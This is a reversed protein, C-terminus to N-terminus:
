DDIIVQLYLIDGFPVGEETFIRYYGEFVDQPPEDEEEEEDKEQFVVTLKLRKKEDPKIDETIVKKICRLYEQSAKIFSIYCGKLNNQGKNLVEFTIDFNEKSNNLLIKSPRFISNYNKIDIKAPKTLKVFAHDKNHVLNTNEKCKQCLNFNECECCIYRTGKFNSELCNHCVVNTHEEM